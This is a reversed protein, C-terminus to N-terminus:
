EQCLRGGAASPAGWLRNSVPTWVGMQLRQAIWALTRPTEQRLRLAIRVKDSDGKRWERLDAELWGLAALGERALREARAEGSEQRVAGCHQAGLHESAQALFERELREGRVVVRAPHGCASSKANVGGLGRLLM